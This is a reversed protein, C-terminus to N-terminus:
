DLLISLIEVKIGLEDILDRYVKEVTEVDFSPAKALVVKGEELIETARPRFRKLEKPDYGEIDKFTNVLM